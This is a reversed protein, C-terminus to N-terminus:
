KTLPTSGAPCQIKQSADSPAIPMAPPTTSPQDTACISTSQFDIETPSKVGFVAGTYSKLGPIKATATTMVSKTGDGQPIVQYRYTDTEPKIGLGLSEVTTGLKSNEHYYAQQARNLSAIWQVTKAQRGGNFQMELNKVRTNAPLTTTDSVKDLIFSQASFATPRPSKVTPTSGYLFNYELRLKNADNLEFITQLIPEKDSLDLQTPKTKEDIRYRAEKAVNSGDGEDFIFIKNKPAFIVSIKLGYMQGQWQGL